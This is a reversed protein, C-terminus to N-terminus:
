CKGATELEKGGSQGALRAQYEQPLLKVLRQIVTSAQVTDQMSRTGMM